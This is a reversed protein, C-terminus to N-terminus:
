LQRRLRGQATLSRRSKRRPTEHPTKNGLCSLFFRARDPHLNNVSSRSELNRRPPRDSLRRLIRFPSIRTARNVRRLTRPADEAQLHPGPHDFWAIGTDAFFRKCPQLSGLKWKVVQAVEKNGSIRPLTLRVSGTSMKFM